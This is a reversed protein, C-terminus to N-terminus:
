KIIGMDKLIKLRKQHEEETIEKQKIKNEKKSRKDQMIKCIMLNKRSPCVM